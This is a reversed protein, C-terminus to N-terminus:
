CYLTGLGLDISGLSKTITWHRALLMKALPPSLLETNEADTPM